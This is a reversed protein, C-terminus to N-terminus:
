SHVYLAMRITHKAKSFWAFSLITTGLVAINKQLPNGRMSVDARNNRVVTTNNSYLTDATDQPPSFLARRFRFGRYIGRVKWVDQWVIIHVQAYTRYERCRVGTVAMWRSKVRLNRLVIIIYAHATYIATIFRSATNKFLIIIYTRTAHKYLVATEGASSIETYPFRHPSGSGLGFGPSVFNKIPICM